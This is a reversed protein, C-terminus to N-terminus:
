SISEEMFKEKFFIEGILLDTYETIKINTSSGPICKISKNLYFKMMSADETFLRGDKVAFEHCALLDKKVFKQPLQINVLEDRNLIDSIVGEGNKKLVTFPVSSTFSANDFSCYILNEFEALSVLPRAAEHIIIAENSAVKLGNHVSEQRTKGGKAFVVKKLIGYKDLYMQITRVYEDNCVVVVESVANLHEVRELTHMIMPKGALPLFQKPTEKGFRTGKGAALLILSYKM